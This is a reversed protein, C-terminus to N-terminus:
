GVPLSLASPNLKLGARVLASGLSARAGQDDGARRARLEAEHTLRAVEVLRDRNALEGILSPQMAWEKESESGGM